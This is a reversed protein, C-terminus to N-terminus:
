PEVDVYKWQINDVLTTLYGKVKPSVLRAKTYFFIPMVPLEDLFIKEMQQYYEYREQESKSALAARLLRDYEPNGWNTDNNGGDTQWLDLFVHPDVYDAIWGARQIQYNKSHQADMYVKWEQNYLTIDIGLNRRWMQQLAEAIIRHKELTNYLLEVRPFGRGDPYGAEALLRKAEALDTKIRHRSNYGVLNPPILHYAPNEGGLTVNKV